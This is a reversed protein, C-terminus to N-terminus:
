GTARSPRRGTAQPWGGNSCRCSPASPSSDAATRLRICAGSLGCTYLLGRNSDWRLCMPFLSVSVAPSCPEFSDPKAETGSLLDRLYKHCEARRGVLRPRREHTKPCNHLSLIEISVCHLQERQPPWWRDAEVGGVETAELGGEQGTAGEDPGALLMEPPKLVFGDTGNFLAHHLQLPLDVNSM